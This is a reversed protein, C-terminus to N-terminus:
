FRLTDGTNLGIKDVSGANLELVYMAKEQPQITDYVDLHAREANKKIFVVRKDQDMWIIDLPIYTNKMYFPRSAEDEYIFLMGSNSPMSKVFMLGKKQQQKTEAVDVLFYNDKFCITKREEAGSDALQALSIGILVFVFTTLTYTTKNFNAM